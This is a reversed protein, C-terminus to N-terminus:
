AFKSMSMLVLIQADSCFVLSAPQQLCTPFIPTSVSERQPSRVGGSLAKSDREAIMSALECHCLKTTSDEWSLSVQRFVKYVTM